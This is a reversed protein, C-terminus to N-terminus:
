PCEGSRCCGSEDEQICGPMARFLGPVLAKKESEHAAACLIVAGRVREQESKPTRKKYSRGSNAMAFSGTRRLSHLWPYSGCERSELYHRHLAAESM